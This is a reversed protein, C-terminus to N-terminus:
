TWLKMGGGKIPMEIKVTLSDSGQGLETAFLDKLLGGVEVGSGTDVAALLRAILAEIGSGVESGALTASQVPTGEVGSGADSSTKVEGKELSYLADAGSGSDSSSKETVASYDVEVYVQTCYAREDVDRKLSIGIQLDDIVSWDSGWPQGDAPNTNWQQSYTVYDTNTLEIETGDTVTSNSKLSPKAFALGFNTRCRFYIKIFNITGSGSSAPLNYLDRAWTSGARRVYTENGDSVEEDVKDWHEGEAPFQYDISTEDGAANPRLTEVDNRLDVVRLFNGDPPSLILLHKWRGAIRWGESLRRTVYQQCTEHLSIM